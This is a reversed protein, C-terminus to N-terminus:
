ASQVVVSELKCHTNRRSINMAMSRADDLMSFLGADTLGIQRRVKHVPIYPFVYAWRLVDDHPRPVRAVARETALARLTDIPISAIVEPYLYPVYGRFMPSM